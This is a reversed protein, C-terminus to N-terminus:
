DKKMAYKIFDLFCYVRTFVDPSGLACPTTWSFIGVLTGNSVLPSGSDGKCAGAGIRKFTCLQSPLITNNYRAQCDENDIVTVALKQLIKHLLGHPDSRGWGTLIAHEGKSSDSGPLRVPSQSAGKKISGNLRIVVLDNEWSRELGYQYKPHCNISKIGYVKGNRSIKTSGTVVTLDEYPEDILECVCHAASLVHRDSILAGGCIHIGGYRLSVQYPFENPKADDGGAIRKIRKLGANTLCVPFALLVVSLCFLVTRSGM